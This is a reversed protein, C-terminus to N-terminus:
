GISEKAIIINVVHVVTISTRIVIFVPFRMVGSGHERGVGRCGSIPVFAAFPNQREVLCRNRVSVDNMIIFNRDPIWVAEDDKVIRQDVIIVNDIVIIRCIEPDPGIGQFGAM